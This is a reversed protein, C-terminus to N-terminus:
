SVQHNYKKTLIHLHTFVYICSFSIFFLCIRASGDRSDRLRINIENLPHM